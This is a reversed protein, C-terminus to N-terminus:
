IIIIHILPVESTTTDPTLLCQSTLKEEKKVFLETYVLLLVVTLIMCYYLIFLSTLLMTAIYRPLLRSFFSRQEFWSKNKLVPVTLILIKPQQSNFSTLQCSLLNNIILKQPLGCVPACRVCANSHSM